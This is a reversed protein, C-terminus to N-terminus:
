SALTFIRKLEPHGIAKWLTVWCFQLIPVSNWIPGKFNAGALEKSTRDKLTNIMVFNFIVLVSIRYKLGIEDVKLAIFCVFLLPCTFNSPLDGVERHSEWRRAGVRIGLCDPQSPWWERSPGPGPCRFYVCAKDSVIRLIDELGEVPQLQFEMRSLWWQLETGEWHVQFIM